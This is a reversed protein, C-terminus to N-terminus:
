GGGHRLHAVRRRAVLAQGLAIGGDNPPVLRHSHVDDALAAVCAESIWRNQFVGGSLVVPLRGTMGYARAIRRADAVAAAVHDVIARQFRAAITGRPVGALVDDVIACLVPRPDVTGDHAPRPFRYRRPDALAAPDAVAELEIAAQAEFDVRHRLGIISAVADFLRGASSCPTVGLGSRLRTALLEREDGDLASVCPLRPEWDIGAAWLLALATLAPTEVASDGGPLPIPRFTVARIARERTAVLVEGGWISTADGDTGYGTGDFTVAVVPGDIRHEGAAAIAHAHHHQVEVVPVGWSAALERGLRASLYGPHRDIAVVEPRAGHLNCLHEAAFRAADYTALRGHDGLHASMTATPGSLLCLAGKLDGGMALVTPGDGGVAIPLPTYGRARRIPMAWSSMVRVVSDDCAVQIPRDHALFVDAIDGLVELAREDDIVIPEDAHNGSTCVLVHAGSDALLLHQLPTSPLMAGVEAAHPAVLDAWACATASRRLLVIPREPSQLAAVDVDDLVAIGRLVDTSGVLVAFAKDGRRKRTRLRGVAEANTADCMLQYGGLSKVAVIAGTTLLRAAARVADDREAIADGDRGVLRVRPGCDHCGIPQAHFRRHTPDDYEAACAGCMPFSAMTTRPRDYPLSRTITFRPGCDTCTVFPHRYRRDDPDFLEHRCAECVAVDAPLGASTGSATGTSAVIHFGVPRRGHDSSADVTALQEIGDIRALPPAEEVVGRRLLEIVDPAGYADIVVADGDNRVTGEVGLRTALRHVFPRFGVGQVVGTVRLTRRERGVTTESCGTTLPLRPRAADRLDPVVAGTRRCHEVVPRAARRM